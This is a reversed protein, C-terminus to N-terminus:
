HPRSLGSTREVRVLTASRTTFAALQRPLLRLEYYARVLERRVYRWGFGRAAGRWEDIDTCGGVAECQRAIAPTLQYPRLVDALPSNNPNFLMHDVPLTWRCSRSVLLEATQRSVIYAAAGTHRSRLRGIQRGGEVDVLEDVLVRQNEPGYHEIKLLDVGRPIWDADRLLAAASADIAIDDEVILAHSDDTDLFMQWARMHSLTCCMDGKPIPGLPGDPAFHRDMLEDSVTRADIASVTRFSVGLAAFQATMNELRDPRRELNILFAQM